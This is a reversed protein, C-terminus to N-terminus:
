LLSTFTSIASKATNIGADVWAFQKTVRNYSEWNSLNDSWQTITLMDRLVLPAKKAFVTDTDDETMAYSRATSTPDFMARFHLIPKDCEFLPFTTMAHREGFEIRMYSDDWLAPCMTADFDSEPFFPQAIDGIYTKMDVYDSQLYTNRDTVPLFGVVAEDDGTPRYVELHDGNYYLTNTEADYVLYEGICTAPLVYASVAKNKDALFGYTATNKFGYDSKYEGTGNDHYEVIHTITGIATGRPQTKFIPFYFRNVCDILDGRPTTVKNRVGQSLDPMSAIMAVGLYYEHTDTVTVPHHDGEGYDVDVTITKNPYSVTGFEKKIFMGNSLNERIYNRNITGDSNWRNIFMREITGTVSFDFLYTQVTDMSISLTLLGDANYSVGNIFFYYWRDGYGTLILYNVNDDITLDDESFSIADTSFPPYWTDSITKVTHANFFAHQDEVDDFYPEDVTSIGHIYALKIDM